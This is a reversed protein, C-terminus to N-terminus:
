PELVALDARTVIGRDVAYKALLLRANRIESGPGEDAGLGVRDRVADLRRRVNRPNQEREEVGARNLRNAIQADTPLDASTADVLLPECLAVLARFSGPSLHVPVTRDGELPSKLAVAQGIHERLDSVEVAIPSKPDVNIVIRVKPSRVLVAPYGPIATHLLAGTGVDVVEMRLQNSEAALEWGHELVTLSAFHRHLDKRDLVLDIPRGSRAIPGRGMTITGGPALSRHFSRYDVIVRDVGM